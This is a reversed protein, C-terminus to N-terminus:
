AGVVVLVVVIIFVVIISFFLVLVIRVGHGGLSLLVLDVLVRGIASGGPPDVQAVLLEDLENLVRM